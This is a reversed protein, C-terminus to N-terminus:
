LQLTRIAFQAIVGINLKDQDPAVHTAVRRFAHACKGFFLSDRYRQCKIGSASHSVFKASQPERRNNNDISGPPNTQNALAVIRGLGREPPAEDTKELRQLLLTFRDPSFCIPDSRFM